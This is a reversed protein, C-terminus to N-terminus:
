YSSFVIPNVAPELGVKLARIIAGDYVFEVPIELGAIRYHNPQDSKELAFEHGYYILQYAGKQSISLQLDGYALESYTAIVAASDNTKFAQQYLGIPAFKESKMLELDFWTKHSHFANLSSFNLNNLGLLHEYIIVPLLKVVQDNVKLTWPLQMNSGNSQNVLIVLGLDEGPMFSVLSSYGDINGGHWILQRGALEQIFWGLGYKIKIDFKPIEDQSEVQFLAQQSAESVLTEGSPLKGHNLFLSVWKALDNVTSVMVGAAGIPEYQIYPLLQEQDYPKAYDAAQQMQEVTFHTASMSLPHLISQQITQQWTQQTIIESTLGLTMYMLNNYQWRGRFGYEPNKNMELLPLKLFLETRSFPTLYWIIDHRPLGVRHSLLDKLTAQASVESNQLQFDPLHKHITDNLDLKQKDDLIALATALFSKTNSGIRFQTEATVPLQLERDRFGYGKFFVLEGGKIVGIAVGTHPAPQSQEIFQSIKEELGKFEITNALSHQTLCCAILYFVFKKM